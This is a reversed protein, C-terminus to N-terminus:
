SLKKHLLFGAYHIPNAISKTRAKENRMRAFITRGPKSNVELIWVRGCTDIGLDIGLEALRGHHAELFPPIRSSLMALTAILENAKSDGFEKTLFSTVEKATGGGHLNSTISGPKGIRVAMGTSEWLGRGNKQVLSRVDYAMGETSHLTLYEQILYPRMGILNRLWVWCSDFDKFDREIPHNHADRGKIHFSNNDDMTSLKHIHLAGRGQSGGQPKLFVDSRTRLWKRLETGSSLMSTEPLYLHLASDKQLIQGVEWKGSLGYGLFRIHPKARLKGVHYRYQRYSHKSSFFCRDYILSPLPFLKMVWEQTQSLYSYGRVMNQKWDIRNPSFVFVDLGESDGYSILHEYFDSSAFPLRRNQETVMIGLLPRTASLRM